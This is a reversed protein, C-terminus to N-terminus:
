HKQLIYCRTLLSSRPDNFIYSAAVSRPERVPTCDADTM